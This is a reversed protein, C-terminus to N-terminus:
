AFLRFPWSSWTEDATLEPWHPAAASATVVNEFAITSRGGVTLGVSVRFRSCPADVSLESAACSQWCGCVVVVLLDVVDLVVVLEVGVVVDLVLVVVEVGVVVVVLEVVVGVVVLLLM